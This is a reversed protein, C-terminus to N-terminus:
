EEGGDRRLAEKVERRVRKRYRRKIKHREGPRWHLVTRWRTFADVEDADGMPIEHNASV